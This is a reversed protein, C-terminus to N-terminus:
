YKAENGIEAWGPTWFTTSADDADPWEQQMEEYKLFKLEQQDPYSSLLNASQSTNISWISFDLMTVILPHLFLDILCNLSHFYTGLTLNTTSVGCCLLLCSRNPDSRNIKFERSHAKFFNNKLLTEKWQIQRTKMGSPRFEWLHNLCCKRLFLFAGSLDALISEVLNEM